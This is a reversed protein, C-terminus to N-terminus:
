FSHTQAGILLRSCNQTDLAIIVVYCTHAKCMRCIIKGQIYTLCEPMLSWLSILHHYNLLLHTAPHRIHSLTEGREGLESLKRRGLVEVMTM